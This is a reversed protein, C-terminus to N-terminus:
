HTSIVLNAYKKSLITFIPDTMKHYVIHVCWCIFYIFIVSVIIHVLMLLVNEKVFDMILIHKLFVGHLLYVTFVGEALYNIVPNVKLNIRTFLVFIIIGMIIVIPNCYEWATRETFYGTVDNIRAWLVLLLCSFIFMLILQWNKICSFLNEDKKIYAGFLYMLSFNVISYGWQSGYMGVTSLGVIPKGAIEGLIDVFTPIVSFMFLSLFVFIRFDKLSLKNVVINIFPSLLFVTCYLVVFYNSPLLARIFSKMSFPDGRFIVKAFYILEAFIMVQVILEVPRWVSRKFTQCLFYGSIIMFLDVSCIFLSEFMYLVYFNLSNERVYALGGGALPNNYHLVIVGMIALIRLLEINSLREKKKM